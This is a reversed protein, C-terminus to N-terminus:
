ERFHSNMLPRPRYTAVAETKAVIINVVTYDRILADHAMNDNIGNEKYCAWMCLSVIYSYIWYVSLSIM